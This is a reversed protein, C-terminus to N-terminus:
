AAGAGASEVRRVAEAGVLARAEVWAEEDPEGVQARIYEAEMDASSNFVALTKKLTLLLSKALTDLWEARM